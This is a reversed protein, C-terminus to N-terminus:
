LIELLGRCIMDGSVYDYLINKVKAVGYSVHMRSLPYM